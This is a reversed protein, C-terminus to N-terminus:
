RSRSGAAKHRAETGCLLVLREVGADHSVRHHMLLHGPEVGAEATVSVRHGDHDAHNAREGGEIVVRDVDLIHLLAFHRAHAHDGLHRGDGGHSVFVRDPLGENIGPVLEFIRRVEQMHAKRHRALFVLDIRDEGAGHVADEDQMRVM